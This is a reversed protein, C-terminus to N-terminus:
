WQLIDYHIGFGVNWGFTPTTLNTYTNLGYGVQPGIGWKKKKVPKVIQKDIFYAGELETFKIKDSKSIAFVQWKDKYDKMGYTIGITTLNTTFITQDPTITWKKTQDNPIVYFKSMGVLHQQFGADSYPSDFKLGYHNTKEDLLVVSDNKSTIGGLDAQVKTQIASLVEGKVKKLEETLTKNYKELESLKNVVYNDKTSIYAKLKKDYVTTVSDVLARTNQDNITQEFKRDAREKKLTSLTQFLFVTLLVVVVFLLFGYYKKIFTIIDTM